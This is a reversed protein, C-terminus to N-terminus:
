SSLSTQGPLNGWLVSNGVEQFVPQLTLPAKKEIHRQLLMVDFCPITHVRYFHLVVPNYIVCIPKRKRCVGPMICGIFIACVRTDLSIPERKALFGLRTNWGISIVCLHLHGEIHPKETLLGPMTCRIFIEVCSLTWLYPNKNSVECKWSWCNEHFM